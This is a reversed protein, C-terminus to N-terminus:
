FFIHMIIIGIGRSNFGIQFLTITEVVIELMESFWWDYTWGSVGAVIGVSKLECGDISRRCVKVKGSYKIHFLKYKWGKHQTSVSVSDCSVLWKCM